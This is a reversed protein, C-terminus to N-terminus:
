GPAIERLDEYRITAEGNQFWPYLSRWNAMYTGDIRGSSYFARICWCIDM